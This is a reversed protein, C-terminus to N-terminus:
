RSIKDLVKTNINLLYQQGQSTYEELVVEVESEWRIPILNDEIELLTTLTKEKTDFLLLASKSTTLNDYIFIFKASDLSWLFRRFSAEQREAVQITQKEGSELSVIYIYKNDLGYSYVYYEDDPSFSFNYSSEGFTLFPTYRGTQTDFRYLGLGDSQNGDAIVQPAIFLYRNDKYWHYPLPMSPFGAYEGYQNTYGYSEYGTIDKFSIQWEKTGDVRVIHLRFINGDDCDTAVWQGDPSTKSQFWNGANCLAIQTAANMLAFDLTPSITQTPARTLTPLVITPTALFTSTPKPSASVAPALSPTVKNCTALGIILLFCLFVLKKV